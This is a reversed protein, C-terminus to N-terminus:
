KVKGRARAKAESMYYELYYSKGEDLALSDITLAIYTSRLTEERHLDVSIEVFVFAVSSCLAISHAIVDLNLFCM